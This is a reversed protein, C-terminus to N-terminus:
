GDFCTLGTGSFGSTFGLSRRYAQATREIQRDEYLDLGNRSKKGSKNVVVLTVKMSGLDKASCRVGGKIYYQAVATTYILNYPDSTDLHNEKEQARLDPLTPTAGEKIVVRNKILDKFITKYETHNEAVSNIDFGHGLKIRSIRVAPHLRSLTRTHSEVAESGAKDEDLGFIIEELNVLRSIALLHEETLGNTGYLSLLAYDELDLDLTQLTATDIISECLILHKSTKSPYEPYLGKRGSSYYHGGGVISRGYLDVISGSENLLPFIICGRGWKTSTQRSKYGIELLRWDLCRAECYEQAPKHNHLSKHYRKFSTQPNEKKMQSLNPPSKISLSSCLSKAKLIAERKTLREMNLIFDIVDLSEVKCSGAFCYATNTGEYIRMSAKKDEHFPCNLMGNKNPSLSYHSLVTRINLREKIQQITM